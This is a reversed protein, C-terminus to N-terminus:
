RLREQLRRIETRRESSLSMSRSSMWRRAAALMEDSPHRLLGSRLAPTRGGGATETAGDTRITVGFVDSVIVQGSPPIVAAYQFLITNGALQQDDPVPLPFEFAGHALDEIAVAQPGASAYLQNPDIVYAGQGVPIVPDHGNTDRFSVWLHVQVDIATDVGNQWMVVDSLAFTDDAVVVEGSQGRVFRIQDSGTPVGYRVHPLFAASRSAGGDPDATSTVRYWLGPVLAGPPLTVEHEADANTTSGSAVSIGSLEEVM